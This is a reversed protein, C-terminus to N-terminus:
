LALYEKIYTTRNFIEKTKKGKSSAFTRRFICEGYSKM